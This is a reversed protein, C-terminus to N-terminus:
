KYISIEYEFNYDAMKKLFLNTHHLFLGYSQNELDEQDISVDICPKLRLKEFLKYNTEVFRIIDKQHDFWLFQKSVDCVIYERNRSLSFNGKEKLIKLADLLMKDDKVILRCVSYM